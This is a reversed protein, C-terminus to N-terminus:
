RRNLLRRKRRHWVSHKGGHGSTCTYALCLIIIESAKPGVSPARMLLMLTFPMIFSDHSFYFWSGVWLVSIRRSAHPPGCQALFLLLVWCASFIVWFLAARHPFAAISASPHFRLPICTCIHGGKVWRVNLSPLLLFQWTRLIVVLLKQSPGLPVTWHLGKQPETSAECTSSM